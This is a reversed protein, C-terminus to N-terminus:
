ANKKGGEGEEKKDEDKKTHEEAYAEYKPVMGIVKYGTLYELEAKSGIKTDALERIIAYAVGVVAGGIVGVAGIILNSTSTDVANEVRAENGPFITQNLLGNLSGESSNCVDQLAQVTANVIDTSLQASSTTCTVDIFNSYSTGSAYTQLTAKFYGDLAVTNYETTGDQLVTIFKKAYGKQNDKDDEVLIKCAAQEVETYKIYNVAVQALQKSTSVVGSDTSEEDDHAAVLITRTAKYVPKKIARAYVVGVALGILMCIVVAIWHKIIMHWIQGLTIGREEEDTKEIVNNNGGKSVQPRQLTEIEENNNEQM